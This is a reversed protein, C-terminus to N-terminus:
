AQARGEPAAGARYLVRSWLFQDAWFPVPVTPIGARVAAATTGAGCHHVAAHMRPLLWDHPAERVAMLRDGGLLDDFNNTGSWGAAVIARHKTKRSRTM